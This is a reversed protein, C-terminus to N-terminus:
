TDFRYLNHKKMHGIIDKAYDRKTSYAPKNPLSIHRIFQDPDNRYPLAKSYLKSSLLRGADNFSDTMSAYVRYYHTDKGNKNSMRICGTAPGPGPKDKSLCTLGFYNKENTTLKSNGWGSEDGSQAILVSAPVNYKKHAQQAASSVTNIFSAPDANAPVETGVLAVTVMSFVLVSKKILSFM